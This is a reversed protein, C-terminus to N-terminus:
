VRRLLDPRLARIPPPCSSVPMACSSSNGECARSQGDAGARTGLGDDHKAWGAAISDQQPLVEIRAAPKTSTAQTVVPPAAPPEPVSACNPCRKLAFNQRLMIGGQLPTRVLRSWNEDPLRGGSSITYGKPVTAPDVAVVVSGPAIM